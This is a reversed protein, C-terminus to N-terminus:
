FKYRATFRVSRPAQFSTPALFNPNIESGGRAYDKQQNVETAEDFDFINFVDIKLTLQDDAWHPIYSLGADVMYTWDTDGYDGRSSLESDGNENVCYFSSAGYRDFNGKDYSTSGDGVLFGAEGNRADTPLFGNCSQPTGSMLNVNATVTLEETFQYAGYVKFQHRRDNPLYGQSGDQFRKHDFDQTAGADEQGLTSNVYGEINGESKSYVYSANMYWGDAFARELTLELGKYTRKYEPINFYDNSVTQATVDGDGNTDIFLNLDKGPNILLCGSMSHVDFGGEPTEWDNGENAMAFGQDVGWNYFGDHSCMDDMGDQIERYMLKVGATWNEMVEQQYGLIYEDQFMPDLDSVAIVRPDPVQDDTYGGGIKEGLGIPAGTAADIDDYKYYYQSGAEQRTARINTNSAIPIYSRGFTGYFKKTSDGDVDWSFGLRPAILEEAEVFVEGNAAYNTFTENRVGLYLLIDDTIQWNDEIYFATNEVKFNGSKQDDYIVRVAQTGIPQEVGNISTSTAANSEFYRYYVGGTYQSGLTYSIFEENNYGVRFEHDGLTYSVDIKYSTREDRDSEPEVDLITSQATNWCGLVERAGWSKDGRTDFVRPCLAAAEDPNRPNKNENRNELEGYMLSVSLDDTIQGSYNFIMIDGGNEETYRTTEEGHKGTYYEDDANTYFVRDIDEENQIYTGSVLHDDNIYWDLKILGNPNTTSRDNSEIRNYTDRTNDQFELNAYIFLTDEIIPGGVGINYSLSESYDDARYGTLLSGDPEELDITNKGDTRLSDPTYYAAAQFKWENTGSKTVTNTVGGLSRGYEAGYGGTKVETQSIADFPLTAFSLFSRINTVDFGDIYYGNEAVSSGGFSPLNGFDADGPVTGPTLLAIATSNRGVPLLEIQENTFVVSSEVSSTDIASIASGRVQIIETNDGSFIVSSGTGITVMVTSTGGNSSKVTYRGPPVNKFSFKGNEDATLTRSLGTANSKFTITAGVKAEGYISGVTNSAAFTMPSTALCAGVAVAALSRNFSRKITSNKM